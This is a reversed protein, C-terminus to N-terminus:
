KILYKDNNQEDNNYPKKGALVHNTKNTCQKM